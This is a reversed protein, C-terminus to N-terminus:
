DAASPKGPKQASLRRMIERTADARMDSNLRAEESEKALMLSDDYSYDRRQEVTQPAGWSDSSAIRTRFTVRYLLEYESVKGGGSLSLIRKDASESMLELQMEAQEPVEVVTIGNSRLSRQLGPVLGPAGSKQIYLSHFSLDALGRLHFGCATLALLCIALLANRLVRDSHMAFIKM